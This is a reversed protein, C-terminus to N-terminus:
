SVQTSSLKSTGQVDRGVLFGLGSKAKSFDHDAWASFTSYPSGLSPWQLRYNVGVRTDIGTGALAPNLTLPSNYYQSLQPDQAFASYATLFLFVLVKQKLM